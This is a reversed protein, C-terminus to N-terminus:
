RKTLKPGVYVVDVLENRRIPWSFHLRLTSSREKGHWPCWISEGPNTPHRFTLRDRFERKESASSDSFLSNEGSFYDRDIRRAEPTPSGTPEFAGARRDLIGLLVVIREASSKSFPVGALKAFADEAFRLRTFRTVCSAEVDRWTFMPVGAEALGTEAESVTRWNPLTAKRDVIEGEGYRLVVEVPTYDWDSPVFSVLACEVALISRFAAEGIGSDTVIEGGCELYDDPSHQRLDDWFPGASTLWSMLSRQQDRSLQGIAQSM